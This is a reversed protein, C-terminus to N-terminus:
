YPCKDNATSGCTSNEPKNAEDICTQSDFGKNGDSDECSEIFKRWSSAQNKGEYSGQDECNEICDDTGTKYGGCDKEVCAKVAACSCFKYCMLGSWETCNTNCFANATGAEYVAEGGDDKIEGCDVTTGKECIEYPEDVNGNGCTLHTKCADSQFKCNEKMCDDMVPADKCNTDLCEMMTDYKAKAAPWTKAICAEECTSDSCKGVCEYVQYCTLADKDVCAYTDWDTCTSNCVAENIPQWSDGMEQCPKTEKDECIEGEDIKGNGCKENPYCAYYEDPCNTDMCVAIDDSGSCNATYCTNFTEYLGKGQESGSDVCATKCADDACATVCQFIQSCTKTGGASCNTPDWGTCYRNCAADGTIYNGPLETCPKTNGMECIEHSDLQGNGCNDGDERPVCKSLDYATCDANCKAELEPYFHGAQWCPVNGDCFEGEEIIGNGCEPGNSTSDSDNESNSGGDGCSVTVLAFIFSLVFLFNRM